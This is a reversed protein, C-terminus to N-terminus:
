RHPPYTSLKRQLTRRHIGLVRAAKSVNGDCDTLVRQIHEWEVRDLSPVSGQEEQDGENPNEELGMAVLIQDADAPKTLYDKAGVNVAELATAISGYGTLVVAVLDPFRKCLEEIVEIGSRGPMRLDVVAFDPTFRTVIVLAHDYSDAVEVEYGRKEFAKSLRTRYLEDDDVVLIRTPAEEDSSLKQM